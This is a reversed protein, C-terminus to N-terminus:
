ANRAYDRGRNAPIHNAAFRVIDKLFRLNTPDAALTAARLDNRVVAKVFSGLHKPDIDGVAYENIVRLIRALHQKEQDTAALRDLTEFVPDSM